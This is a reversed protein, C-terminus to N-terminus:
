GVRRSVGANSRSLSMLMPGLGFEGKRARDTLTRLYGGASNIHGARELICAMVTAANGAGLVECADEYASPSVGLMSRVVVAAGMLDRWNSIAGGPGYDAIQPCAQLVMGLPYTKPEIPEANAPNSLNQGPEKKSLPELEIPSDSKSNQIHREIQVPNGSKKATKTQMELTNVIGERLLTMEDLADTVEAQTPNRPISTVLTRFKGHIREWNGAAGEDIAAEILKAVDRRCITLRERMRQFQRRDAAIADALMQIEEARALLPTLSFGFAEDVEGERDRRAFRKGNASDRRSILGADVLVTLHRRMTPESMGHARSSLQTNSPFVVLNTGASLEAKPHFSLLANLLALGRDTVGLRERAECVARYIKWKDVSQGPEADLAQSALMALTM